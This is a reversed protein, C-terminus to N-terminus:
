KNEEIYKDVKKELMEFQCPGADLIAKHFEKAEFKSGLEEEAKNRLEEMEYYGTTYSFYVGPDGISTVFIDEAVDKNFGKEELYDEVDEVSWGEYNIGVDIRAQALYGMDTNIKDLSALVKANEEKGLFDCELTANYATYVAWGEVYGLNSDLTRGPNPNTNRFYWFQFMHGPCGEHALTNFLGDQNISNVKIRNYDPNDIPCINYYALTTDKIKSISDSLYDVEYPIKGDIPYDDMYDEQFMDIMEEATMDDYVSYLNDNKEVYDEYADPNSMYISTLQMLLDDMRDDMVEIEEDMTKASGSYVPFLYEEYYEKGGEFNCLGGDNKGTGKLEELCDKVDQYAPVVVEEVAEKNQAKFEDKEEDSLFDLKDINDEFVECIFSGNKDIVEDCQEIVDDAVDDSMFYGKESKEYEFDILKGFYDRVQNILTIYDEVDQKDDFRYEEFATPINEQAGSMPSFPEALYTYDYVRMSIETDYKLCEFTFREDETLDADEFELLEDYFKEDEKKAAEMAEEDMSADGLTAEGEMKVDFKSADMIYDNYVMTSATVADEFYEMLFEQFEPNEEDAYEVDEESTDEKEAETKEEKDKDKDKDEKKEKKKGTTEGLIVEHYFESPTRCASLSMVMLVALLAAIFRKFKLKTNKKM